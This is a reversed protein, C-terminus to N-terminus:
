KKKGIPAFIAASKIPRLYGGDHPSCIAASKLCLSPIELKEGIPACTCFKAAVKVYEM